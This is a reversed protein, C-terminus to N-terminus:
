ALSLCAGARCLAARAGTRASGSSSCVGNSISTIVSLISLMSLSSMGHLHDKPQALHVYASYLLSPCPVEQSRWGSDDILTSHRRCIRLLSQRAKPFIVEQNTLSTELLQCLSAVSCPSVRSQLRLDQHLAHFEVPWSM